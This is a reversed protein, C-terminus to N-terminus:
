LNFMNMLDSAAEAKSKKNPKTHKETKNSDSSNNIIENFILYEIEDSNYKIFSNQPIIKKLHKENYLINISNIYTEDNEYRFVIQYKLKKFNKNESALLTKQKSM